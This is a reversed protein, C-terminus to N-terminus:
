RESGQKSRAMTCTGNFVAGEELVVSRARINGTVKATACMRLVGGCAVDGIVQGALTVSKGAMADANLRGTVGLELKQACEIKGEVLGEVKCSTSRVNGSVLASAGLFLRGEVTLNGDVRGAIETESGSSVSGEIIVGEPVILREARVSKARRMALDDASVMPDDGAEAAADRVREDGRSTQLVDQFAANVKGFLSGKRQAKDLEEFSDPEKGGPRDDKHLDVRTKPPKEPKVTRKNREFSM